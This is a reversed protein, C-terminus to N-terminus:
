TRVPIPKEAVEKCCRRLQHALSAGEPRQQASRQPCISAASLSDNAARDSIRGPGAGVKM